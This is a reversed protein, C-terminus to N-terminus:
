NTLLKMRANMNDVVEEEMSRVKAKQQPAAPKNAKELEKEPNETQHAQDMPQGLKSPSNKERKHYVDIVGDFNDDGERWLAVYGPDPRYSMKKGDYYPFKKDAKWATMTRKDIKDDFNRDEEKLVLERTAKPLYRFRDPKGDKNMDEETRYTAGKATYYYRKDVQGDFDKDEETEARNGGKFRTWLDPKGDVNKDIEGRVIKGNEMILKTEKRGDGDNDEMKVSEGALAAQSAWLWVLSLAVVCFSRKQEKRVPEDSNNMLSM